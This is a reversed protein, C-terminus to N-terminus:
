GSQFRVTADGGDAGSGGSWGRRSLTALDPGPEESPMRFPDPIGWNSHWASVPDDATMQLISALQEVELQIEDISTDIGATELFQRAADVDLQSGEM